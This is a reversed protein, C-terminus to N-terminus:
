ITAINFNHWSISLGYDPGSLDPGSAMPHPWLCVNTLFQNCVTWVSNLLCFSAGLPSIRKDLQHSSSGVRRGSPFVDNPPAGLYTPVTWVLVLSQRAGWMCIEENVQGIFIAYCQFFRENVPGAWMDLTCLFTPLPDFTDLIESSIDWM